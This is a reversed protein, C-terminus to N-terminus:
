DGCRPVEDQKESYNDSISMSKYVSPVSPVKFERDLVAFTQNTLTLCQLISRTSCTHSKVVKEYSNQLLSNPMTPYDEQSESSVGYSATVANLMMAQTSVYM